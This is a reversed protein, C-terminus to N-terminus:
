FNAQVSVAYTRPAALTVTGGTVYTSLDNTAISGTTIGGVSSSNQMVAKNQLNKVFANVSYTRNPSQWSTYFDYMTYGKQVLPNQKGNNMAWEAEQLPNSTVGPTGAANGGRTWYQSKYYAIFRPILTSGGWLKFQHQYTMNVSWRPANQLTKGEAGAVWNNYNNAIETALARKSQDAGVANLIADPTMVGIDPVKTFTTRLYEVALDLRDSSTPLFTVDVDVGRSVLDATFGNNNTMFCSDALSTNLIANLPMATTAACSTGTGANSFNYLTLVETLRRNHYANNFAELNVQLKSDFWRSKFGLATSEVFLPKSVGPKTVTTTYQTGDGLRLDQLTIQTTESAPSNARSDVAGARSATKYTLYAMFDSMVDYEVGFSYNFRNTKNTRTLANSWINIDRQTLYTKRPVVFLSNENATTIGTYNTVPYTWVYPNSGNQDETLYDPSNKSTVENWDQRLGASVRLSDLVPYTFNALAAYSTNRGGLNPTGAYCYGSVTGRATPNADPIVSYCATQNITQFGSTGTAANMGGATGATWGSTPAIVDMTRGKSGGTTTYYLGSTWILKSDQNSAWNVTLQSTDSKNASAMWGGTQNVSERTLSRSHTLVPIVSLTGYDTKWNIDLQAATTKNDRIPNNPFANKPLGDDWPNARDYWNVGDRVAIYTAPCGNPKIFIQNPTNTGITTPLATIYTSSGFCFPAYEYQRNPATGSALANAANLAGPYVLNPNITSPAGNPAVGTIPSGNLAVWHGTYLLSSASAGNGGVHTSTGTAVIDLNDSVAWRYKLRLVEQDSNGANSSYYGDRENSSYALRIAQNDTLPLNLVADANRMAYNGVELSGSGQFEFVPKNTVLSVAGTLAGASMTTSQAGRMVEAQALDLTASRVTAGSAAVGDVLLTVSSQTSNMNGAGRMFVVVDGGADPQMTVGTVGALIEDVRRKGEKALQDGGYVVISQSTKQLDRPRSEATITIEELQDFSEILEGEGATTQAMAPAATWAMLASSLCVLKKNM